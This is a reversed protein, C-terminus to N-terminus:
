VSRRDFIPDEGDFMTKFKDSLSGEADALQEEYFTRPVFRYEVRVNRSAAALKEEYIGHVVLLMGLFLSLMLLARM